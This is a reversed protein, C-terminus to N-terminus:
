GAGEASGPPGSAESTTSSGTRTDPADPSTDTPGDTGSGGNPGDSPEVAPQLREAVFRAASEQTEFHVNDDVLAVSEDDLEDRTYQGFAEVTPDFWLFGDERGQYIVVRDEDDFAVFYGSRAWAALIAFGLVLVAAFGVVLLFRVFSATRSRKRVPADTATVIARDAAPPLVPAEASGADGGEATADDGPSIEVQDATVQDAAEVQHEAQHEDDPLPDAVIQTEGTNERNPEDAWLPVVDFEQTPDPPADGELVDVVVVTVNDRGGSANAADVLAQAAEAPDTHEILLDSIHDDSIEDVLGDSCLLLRDGQFIPMTWSDVRVSPEIGLARTVINRRPHTRAEDRSIAGEAVLEQVFSHDVTLQRLRAHRMVYCRSDGVNAIGFAQGDHPDAVVAIATITTGMGARDPDAVSGDYIETNAVDIAAVLEDLSNTRGEPLNEQLRTVAMESAVEGALHGGMGDAVVFLGASTHFSDENQTRLQGEHSAAGWRLEAM